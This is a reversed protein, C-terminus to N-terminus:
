IIFDYESNGSLVKRQKEINEMLKLMAKKSQYLKTKVHTKNASFINVYHQLMRMDLDKCGLSRHHSQLVVSISNSGFHLLFISLKSHGFDIFLM